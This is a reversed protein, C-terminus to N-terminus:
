ALGLEIEVNAIAVAADIENVSLDRALMQVCEMIRDAEEETPVDVSYRFARILGSKRDNHIM